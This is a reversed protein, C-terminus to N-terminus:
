RVFRDHGAWHPRRLTQKDPKGLATLPLADVLDVSKPAHLPGKQARVLQTVGSPDVTHGPRAVVVAKVAEGWRDDPVGIVAVQAVAPDTAIVDEIERPYVNFGGTVILDKTRDIITLFGEADQRAVDGTHLWGDRFTDATEDPRNWYGEMVLPGRVCIEGPGDGEVENGEPDLLAARLWPVPRGCSALRALTHEGKRLVAITMPAESQGYFQFFRPGLREIAEALRVPSIPAAGYYVTELSTLDTAGLKPHDLLAYLMTPVLMTDTIGDRAITDLVAEPDFRSLVHLCGGRLLTPLFFAAGAHSLPTSILFRTGPQLAWEAMQVMTMAAVARQSLMVGKPQGTTGGTFVLNAIAEPRVDPARLRRSGFRSALAMLDPGAESPALALLHKLGPVRQALQTAREDFLSPDFILTEIGADALVFAQDALSGMPHLSTTRAGAVMTAGLAVLVEPRNGSLIAVPSGPGIGLGDLAQTVRSITDALSGATVTMGGLQLAPARAHERLAGILLDAVLVPRQHVSM